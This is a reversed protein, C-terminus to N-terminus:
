EISTDCNVYDLVVEWLADCLEMECYEKNDKIVFVSAPICNDLRIKVEEHQLIEILKGITWWKPTLGEGFKFYKTLSILKEDSLKNFQEETICQKM